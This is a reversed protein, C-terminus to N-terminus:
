KISVIKVNVNETDVSCYIKIPFNNKNIFKLDVSGYAVAADKGPEVYPVKRSHPHREVIELSPLQLVANYLTSSIQCKGGGYGKVKNGHEDFIDAKEYGEEPSAQGVTSTFSFTANPEVTAGNLKSATLELNKQRSADNKTYIQTTFNSIEEEIPTKKSEVINANTNVNQNLENEKKYSTRTYNINTNKSAIYNNGKNYFFLFAFIGLIIFIFFLLIYISKKM